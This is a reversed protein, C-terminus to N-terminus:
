PLNDAYEIGAESKSSEIKHIKLIFKIMIMRHSHILWCQRKFYNRHIENNSFIESHFHWNLSVNQQTTFHFLLKKEVFQGINLKFGDSLSLRLLIYCKLITYM